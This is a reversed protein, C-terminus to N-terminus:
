AGFEPSSSNTALSASHRSGTSATTSRWCFITTSSRFAPASSCPLRKSSSGPVGVRCISSWEVRKRSGAAMAQSGRLSRNIQSDATVPAPFGFPPDITRTRRRAVMSYLTMDRSERSRLGASM